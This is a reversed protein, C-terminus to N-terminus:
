LGLMWLLGLSLVGEWGRRFLLRRLGEGTLAGLSGGSETRHFPVM